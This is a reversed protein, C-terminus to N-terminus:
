PAVGEKVPRVLIVFVPFHDSWGDMFTDGVFTRFPYGAFSGDPTRLYAENYVRAGYFRYADDTRQALGPSLIIQDFLNWADRWALSGIGKAFLPGMPGYLLENKAATKDDVARLGSRISKDVPDDNLDGMYIIRADANRELLSDIIHRGLKAALMRKPMSRKEGGRRSPWHAVIVHVTDQELIGSVLLQSRTRFATDAPDDLRYSKHGLVRFYRPDFLLAVDVGRRDPSDEHVIGYHRDAIASAKVLDELVNRNEIEALGMIHVGDPHVDKGLESIVQGMKEIKRMYRESGWRKASGPLFEADDTDPSDITDYLNEINYFGIPAAIFKEQQAASGCGLGFFLSVFLLPRSRM